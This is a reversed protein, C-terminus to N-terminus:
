RETLSVRRGQQLAGYALLSPRPNHLHQMARSVRDWHWGQADGQTLLGHAARLSAWPGTAFTPVYNFGECFILLLKCIIKWETLLSFGNCIMAAEVIGKKLQFAM